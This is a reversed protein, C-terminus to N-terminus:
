EETEKVNINNEEPEEEPSFFYFPDYKDTVDLEHDLMRFGYFLPKRICIEVKRVANRVDKAYESLSEYPIWTKITEANLVRCVGGITFKSNCFTRIEEKELYAYEESGKGYHEKVLDIFAKYSIQYFASAVGSFRNNWFGWFFQMIGFSMDDLRKIKARPSIRGELEIMRDALLVSDLFSIEDPEDAFLDCASLLTSTYTSYREKDNKFYCCVARMEGLEKMCRIITDPDYLGGYETYGAIKVDIISDTKEM